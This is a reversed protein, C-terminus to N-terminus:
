PCDTHRPLKRPIRREEPCPYSVFTVSDPAPPGGTRTMRTFGIWVGDPGWLVSSRDGGYHFISDYTVTYSQFADDYTVVPPNELTVLVHEGVAADFVARDTYVITAATAPTTALAALLVVTLIRCILM